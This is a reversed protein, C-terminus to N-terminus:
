SSRERRRAEYQADVATPPSLRGADGRFAVYVTQPAGPTARGGGGGGSVLAGGRPVVFEGGHLLSPRTAPIYGGGAQPPGPPAEEEADAVGMWEDGAVEGRKAMRQVEKAMTQPTWGEKSMKDVLEGPGMTESYIYYEMLGQRVASLVADEVANQYAGTLWNNPFKVWLTGERTAQQDLHESAKAGKATSEATEETAAVPYGMKELDQAIGGMRTIAAAGGEASNEDAALWPLKRLIDSMAEDSIGVQQQAKSVDMGGVLLRELHDGKTGEHTYAGHKWSTKEQLEKSEGEAMKTLRAVAHGSLSALQADRLKKLSRFQEEEMELNKLRKKATPDAKMIEPDKVAEKLISIQSARANVSETSGLKGLDDLAKNLAKVPTSAALAGAMNDASAVRSLEAKAGGKVGKAAEAKEYKRKSETSGFIKSTAFMKWFDMLVEYLQNMLFEIIQDLRDMLSKTLETQKKAYNKLKDADKHAQKDSISMGNYIQQYGAKDVDEASLLGAAQIEKLRETEEETLKVGKANKELLDKMVKREMDIAMRFKIMNNVEERSKGLNEAMAGIGIEGVDKRLDGTGGFHTLAAEMMELSGGVGLGGAATAIGYEGKSARTAQIETEIALERVSGQMEDPLSNIQLALGEVGENTIIEAVRGADMKLKRALDAYNNAIDRQVIEKSKEAGALKTLQLLQTRGMDKLGQMATSFFKQATKHSMVKGLMKLTKVADGMRMNYLSMDQSAGRIISFFKNAAIGSENASRAMRTFSMKVEETSMGLDTMMEGQLQGIEQLPVGFGKSFVVGTHTLETALAQVTKGARSAEQSVRGLSVASQQLTNLMAIHDAAKLGLGWNEKLDYAATRVQHVTDELHSFSKDTDWANQGMFEITSASQLLESQFRKAQAEADIFLEVIKVIATAAMALLPGIKAFAGMVKGMGKMAGGGVKMAGGGARMAGGTVGGRTKGRAGLGGGMAGMKAGAKTFGAASGKVVAGLSGKLAKASNQIIGKLDKQVMGKFGAAATELGKGAEKAMVKSDVHFFGKKGPKKGAKMADEISGELEKFEDAQDKIGKISDKAAKVNAKGFSETVKGIQGMAKTMAQQFKKTSQLAQRIDLEIGVTLVDDIPGPM